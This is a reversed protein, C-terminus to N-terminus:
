PWIFMGRSVAKEARSCRRTSNEFFGIPNENVLDGGIQVGIRDPLDLTQDIAVELPLRYHDDDVSHGIESLKGFDQTQIPYPEDCLLM